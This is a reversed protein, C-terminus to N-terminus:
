FKLQLENQKTVRSQITKMYVKLYKLYSYETVTYVFTVFKLFSITRKFPLLAILSILTLKETVGDKTM